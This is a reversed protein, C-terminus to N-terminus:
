KGGFAIFAITVVRSLIFLVAGTIVMMGEIRFIQSLYLFSRVTVIRALWILYVVVAVVGVLLAVERWGSKRGPEKYLIVTERFAFPDFPQLKVKILRQHLAELREPGYLDVTVLLFALADVINTLIEFRGMTEGGISNARALDHASSM